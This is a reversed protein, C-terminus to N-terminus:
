YDDYKSLRLLLKILYERSNIYERCKKLYILCIIHNYLAYKLNYAYKFTQVNQTSLQENMTNIGQYRM